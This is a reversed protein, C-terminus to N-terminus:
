KFIWDQSDQWIHSKYCSISTFHFRETTDLEKRGRPSYAVLSGWGHIEWTLISSHTAMEKELCSILLINITLYSRAIWSFLVQGLAQLRTFLSYFTVSLVISGTIILLFLTVNMMWKRFLLWLLRHKIGQLM